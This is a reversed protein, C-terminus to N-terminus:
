AGASEVLEGAHTGRWARPFLGSGSRCRGAAGSVMEDVVEQPEAVCVAGLVECENSNPPWANFVPRELHEGVRGRM